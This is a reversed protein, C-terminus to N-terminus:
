ASVARHQYAVNRFEISSGAALYAAHALEPTHFSRQLVKKGNIQRTATYKRFKLGSYSVGIPLGSTKGKRDSNNERAPAIFVNDTAYPGEDGRRCMVYGQGSGREAWKGSAVWISWWQWLDLEWGIGRRKAGRRQTQFAGFPTRRYGKGAKLEDTRKALLMKYQEAGCGYKRQCKAEFRLRSKEKNRQLVLRAGGHERTLGHRKTIIQRVRERTIEYQDGIQQLTYGNRYLIAMTESRPDEVMASGHGFQINAERAYRGLMQYSVGTKESAAARTLGEAACQRIAEIYLGAASM